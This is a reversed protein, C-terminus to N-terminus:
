IDDMSVGRLVKITIDGGDEGTVEQRKPADLGWITRVDALAGRAQALLAPNGCQGWEESTREVVHAEDEDLDAPVDEVYDSAREGSDPKREVRKSVTRTKTANGCSREWQELASEAIRELLATQRGKVERADDEFKDALRREIRSLMRHVTTRHVGLHDAIRDGTWGRMRLTWAEREITALEEKSRTEKLTAAM